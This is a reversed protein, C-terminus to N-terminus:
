KRSRRIYSRRRRLACVLPPTMLFLGCLIYLASGTGGTAPLDYTIPENVIDMNGIQGLPIRVATKDGMRARCTDCIEASSNCFIFWQATDDLMYAEPPKHEQAYYLEHERLVIGEKLNTEIILYGDNKTEGTAILGGQANYIGFVAGALPQKTLACTKHLKVSYNRAAMSFESAIKEVTDSKIENGWLTITASNSYKVAGTITDPKLM